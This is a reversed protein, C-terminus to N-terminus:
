VKMKKNNKNENVPLEENLIGPMFLKLFLSDSGKKLLSDYVDEIADFYALKNYKLLHHEDSKTYKYIFNHIHVLPFEFGFKNNTTEYDYDYDKVCDLFCTDSNLDKTFILQINSNLPTFALTFEDKYLHSGDVLSELFNEIKNFQEM